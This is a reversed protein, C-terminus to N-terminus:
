GVRVPSGILLIAGILLTSGGPVVFGIRVRNSDFRTTIGAAAIVPEEVNDARVAFEAAEKSFETAADSEPVELAGVRLKPVRDLRVDGHCGPSSRWSSTTGVAAVGSTDDHNRLM